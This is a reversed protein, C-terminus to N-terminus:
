RPSDAGLFDWKQSNRVRYGHKLLFGSIEVLEDRDRVSFDWAFSFTSGPPFQLLKEKLAQVTPCGYQRISYRHRDQPDLYDMIPARNYSREPESEYIAFDAPGEVGLKGGCAFTCAASKIAETGLLSTFRNEDNPTILWGQARFFADSLDSTLAQINQEELTLSQQEKGKTASASRQQWYRLRDWVREKANPSAYRRLYESANRAFPGPVGALQEFALREMVPSSQLFGVDTFFTSTNCPGHNAERVADEVRPAADKSSVKLLYALVPFEVACPWGSRHADIVPLVIALTTSTGYRHLLTASRVLNDRMFTPKSLSYSQALEVFNDALQKEEEPRLPQPLRLYFSSFRPTPCLVEAKEFVSAGAPDLEQWRLLARGNGSEALRRVIPLMVPSSLASWGGTLLWEQSDSPFDDFHAAALAIVSDPFQVAYRMESPRPKSAPPNRLVTLLSVSLTEGRKQPLAALLRERELDVDEQRLVRGFALPNRNDENKLAVLESFFGPSIAADPDILLREMEHIAAETSPSRQLCRSVDSGRLLLAVVARAAEPTGLECLGSTDRLYQTYEQSPPNTRPPAPRLYAEYGKQIVEAQWKSESPVIELQLESTASLSHREPTEKIPKWLEPRPNSDDDVGVDISFRVTYKGPSDFRYHKTLEYPFVKPQATLDHDEVVFTPGSMMGCERDLNVWGQEPTVSIKWKNAFRCIPYGFCSRELFICPELYRKQAASSFVLELPIVEGVQFRHSGTAPRIEVRLGTTQQASMPIACFAIVLLLSAFFRSM